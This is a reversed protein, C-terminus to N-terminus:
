SQQDQYWYPGSSHWKVTMTTVTATSWRGAKNKAWVSLVYTSLHQPVTSSAHHKVTRLLTVLSRHTSSVSWSHSYRVRGASKGVISVKYQTITSNGSFSPKRWAIGMHAASLSPWGTAPAGPALAPIPKITPMPPTARAAGPVPDTLVTEDAAYASPQFTFTQPDGSGSRDKAVVTVTYSVDNDPVDTFRASTVSPDDIDVTQTSHDDGTLTATYGAVPNWAEDEYSATGTWSASVSTSAGATNQVSATFGDVQGPVTSLSSRFGYIWSAEYTYREVFAWDLTAYGDAGWRTGWQNEIVVGTTNYGVILVAHDGLYSGPTISGAHLVPHAADLREFAGFVPMGLVVPHKEHIATEIATRAGAGPGGNGPVSYLYHPATTKATAAVAREASTPKHKWDYDGQPYKSQPAIGQSMLVSYADATTSGGDEGHGIQSYLYMPAYTTSSGNYASYYGLMSYGIAWAVCSGVQKQDGPAVSRGRLSDTDPLATAAFARMRGARPAAKLGDTNPAVASGGRVFGGVPHAAPTGGPLTAAAAPLAPQALLATLLAAIAATHLATTFRM